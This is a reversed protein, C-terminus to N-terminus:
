SPAVSHLIYQRVHELELIGFWQSSSQHQKIKGGLINPLQLKDASM